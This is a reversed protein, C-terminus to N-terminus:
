RKYNLKLFMQNTASYTLGYEKLFFLPLIVYNNQHKKRLYIEKHPKDKLLAFFIAM